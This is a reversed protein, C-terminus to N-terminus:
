VAVVQFDKRRQLFVSGDAILLQGVADAQRWRGARSPDLLQLFGAVDQALHSQKVRVLKAQRERGKDHDAHVPMSGVTKGVELVGDALARIHEVAAQQGSHIGIVLQAHHHLVHIMILLEQQAGQRPDLTHGAYTRAEHEVLHDGARFQGEIMQDVSLCGKGSSGTLWSSNSARARGRVMKASTAKMPKMTQSRALCDLAPRQPVATSNKARPRPTTPKTILAIMRPLTSPKQGPPGAAAGRRSAVRDVGGVGAPQADPPAGDSLVSCARRHASGT